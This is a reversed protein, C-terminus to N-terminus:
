INIRTKLIVVPSTICSIRNQIQKKMEFINTVTDEAGITKFFANINERKSKLTVRSINKLRSM